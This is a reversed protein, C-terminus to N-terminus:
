HRTDEKLSLSFHDYFKIAKNINDKLTEQSGGIAALLKPFLGVAACKNTMSAQSIREFHDTLAASVLRYFLKWEGGTRKVALFITEGDVVTFACCGLKGIYSEFSYIRSALADCMIQLDNKNETEKM